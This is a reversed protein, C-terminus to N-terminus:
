PERIDERLKNVREVLKQLKGLTEAKDQEQVTISNEKEVM